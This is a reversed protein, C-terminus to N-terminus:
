ISAIARILAGNAWLPSNSSRNDCVGPAQLLTKPLGMKKVTTYSGPKKKEMEDAIKAAEDVTLEKLELDSYSLVVNGRWAVLHCYTIRTDCGRGSVASNLNLMHLQGKEEERYLLENHEKQSLIGFHWKNIGARNAKNMENMKRTLASNEKM